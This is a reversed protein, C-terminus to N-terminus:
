SPGYVMNALVPLSFSSGGKVYLGKKVRTMEGSLLMSRIKNRPFRYEHLVHQLLNYDFKNTLINKLPNKM